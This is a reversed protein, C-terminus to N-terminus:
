EVIGKRLILNAFRRTDGTTIIAYSKESRAYFDPKSLRVVGKNHPSLEKILAEYREVAINPYDPPSIMGYANDVAYDLPFLPLIAELMQEITCGDCRILHRAHSASPFNRDALVIEDSHGMEALIKLLEPTIIAPIGLLMVKEEGLM